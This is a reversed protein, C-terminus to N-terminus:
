DATAENNSDAIGAVTCVCPGSGPKLFSGSVQVYQVVHVPTKMVLLLLLLKIKYLVHKVIYSIRSKLIECHDSLQIIEKPTNGPEKIKRASTEFCGTGDEYTTYASEQM